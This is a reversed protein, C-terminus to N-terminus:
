AKKYRTKLTTLKRSISADLERGPTKLKFGGILSEDVKTTLEVKKAGTQTQAFNQIAKLTEASLKRASTVQGAVYGQEALLQEIDRVVLPLERSRGSLILEAALHNAVDSLKIGKTIEAAGYSALRRRSLKRAM